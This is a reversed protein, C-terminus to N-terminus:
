KVGGEEPKRMRISIERKKIQGFIDKYTQKVIVRDDHIEKVFGNERGILTGRTIIFGKGSADEVLARYGAPGKLIGVLRLESVDYRQLPTLRATPTPRKPGLTIFPKFPDRKGVPNYTYSPEKEEEIVKEEKKQVKEEKEQVPPRQRRQRKVVTPKAPKSGGECGWMLLLSIGVVFLTKLYYGGIVRNGARLKRKRKM